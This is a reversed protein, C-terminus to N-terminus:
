CIFDLFRYFIKNIGTMIPVAPKGCMYDDLLCIDTFKIILAFLVNKKVAPTVSVTSVENVYIDTLQVAIEQICKAENYIVKRVDTSPLGEVFTIPNIEKWTYYPPTPIPYLVKDNCSMGYKEYFRAYGVVLYDYISPVLRFCPHIVGRHAEGGKLVQIDNIYRCHVSIIDVDPIAREIRPTKDFPREVLALVGDKIRYSTAVKYMPSRYKMFDRDCSLVHGKYKHAIGAIFDDTDGSVIYTWKCDLLGLVDGLIINSCSPFRRNDCIALRGQRHRWVQHSAVSKKALDVVFYFQLKSARGASIFAGIVKMLHEHSSYWTKPMAPLFINLADVVVIGIHNGNNM